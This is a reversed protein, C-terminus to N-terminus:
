SEGVIYINRGSITGVNQYECSGDDFTANSNYNTATIDTCGCINQGDWEGACDESSDNSIDDDCSFFALTFFFLISSIVKELLWAIFLM